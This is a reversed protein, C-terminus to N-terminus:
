PGTVIVNTYQALNINNAIIFMVSMASNAGAQSSSANVTGGPIYIGGYSNRDSQINEINVYTASADWITVGDNGTPLLYVSSNAGFDVSGNPVYFLVNNGTITVNGAGSQTIAPSGDFIYNGSDFTLTLSAPISFTNPFEFTGGNVDFVYTDGSIFSPSSAYLGASCDYTTGSSFTCSGTGTSVPKNLVGSLPDGVVPSFYETPPGSASNLLPDATLLSSATLTADTGLSVSGPTPSAIAVTSGITGLSPNVTISSYNGLSLGPAAATAGPNLVTLPSFVVSNGVVYTPTWARSEALLTYTFGTGAETVVFKVAKVDNAATGAAFWGAPPTGGNPTCTAGGLCPPFQSGSIDYAVTTVSSPTTTNGSTCYERVLSYTTAQGVVSVIDYSVVTQGGGWQLGLLQSSSNGCQPSSSKSTTIYTASQVDKLFTSSVVQADSSDTIRYKVSNQLNLITLLGASIAGIIVPIITVVIVLEILTFGREGSGQDHRGPAAPSSAGEDAVIPRRRRGPCGWKARARREANVYGM